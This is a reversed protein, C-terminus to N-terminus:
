QNGSHNTHSLRVKVLALLALAPRHEDSLVWFLLGIELERIVDQLKLTAGLENAEQLLVLRIEQLLSAGFVHHHFM